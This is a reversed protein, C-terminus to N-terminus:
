QTVLPIRKHIVVGFLNITDNSTPLYDYDLSARDRNLSRLYWHGAYGSIFQKVLLLGDVMVVAIDGTQVEERRCLVIDGHKFYPEMSDGSIRVAFDARENDTEYEDFANGDIPEGPGAAAPFLPIIRVPKKIEVPKESFHRLISKVATKIEDDTKRYCDVLWQEELSLEPRTNTRGRLYDLEVNFFDAIADLIDMNPERQGSEYNGIAGKSMQLKEALENQTLGAETRLQKLREQFNAM